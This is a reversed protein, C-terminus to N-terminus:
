AGGLTSAKGQTDASFRTYTSDVGKKLARARKDKETADTADKEIQYAAVPAPKVAVGGGGGGM